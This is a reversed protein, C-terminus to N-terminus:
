LLSLFVEDLTPRRLTVDVVIIHAADLRRVAELLSKTRDIVPLSVMGIEDAHPAASGLGQLLVCVKQAQLPDELHLEIIDGGRQAKLEHATGEAVIRGHNLMIINDALHDAEELYQTTLLITTGNAALDELIRWLDLRAKPDLGTTPEDLFLIQPNAVLSAALDLRRRMGGSYQKLPRTKADILDFQKILQQARTRAVKTSLRHLRGIMELNEPGTLNEDVAAYQGALGIRKRVEHPSKTVDFGAVTLEGSDPTILTALMRVVTTKGAGNPGLLGLISGQPVSFSVDHVAIVNGFSKNLRHVTIAPTFM